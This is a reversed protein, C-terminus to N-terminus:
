AARVAAVFAAVREPDKHGPAREVGSSTDVAWPATTHVAEGVNGATLGGALILPLPIPAGRLLAWDFTRGTGGHRGAVATDCIVLDAVSDAARGVDAPGGVSIGEIVACATADRVADLDPIRGHLQVHTLGCSTAAAALEGLAADVFVGVRAVGSPVAAAVDAAHEGGVRRSSGAAFVLGIAWVDLAACAAAEDPDTLGCIKIRTTEGM